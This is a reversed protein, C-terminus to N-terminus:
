EVFRVEDNEGQSCYALYIDPGIPEDKVYVKEDNGPVPVEINLFGDNGVFDPMNGYFGEGPTNGSLKGTHGYGSFAKRATNIVSTRNM